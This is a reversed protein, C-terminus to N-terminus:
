LRKAIIDLAARLHIELIKTLLRIDGKGITELIEIHQNVTNKANGWSQVCLLQYRLLKPQLSKYIRNLCENHSKHVLLNHLQNDHRTIKNYDTTELTDIESYLNSWIELLDKIEAQDFFSPATQAALCELSIRVDFVDRLEKESIEKVFIGTGPVLQVLDDNKLEKLAERIPTRSMELLDALMNESLIEGPKFENKVIADRIAYYASRALTAKDKKNLISKKVTQEVDVCGTYM